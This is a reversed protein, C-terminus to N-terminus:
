NNGNTPKQSILSFEGIFSPIVDCGLDSMANGDFIYVGTDKPPETGDLFFDELYGGYEDAAARTKQGGKIVEVICGGGGLGIAVKLRVEEIEKIM